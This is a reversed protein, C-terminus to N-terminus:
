KTLIKQFLKKNKRELFDVCTKASANVIGCQIKGDKLLFYTFRNKDEKRFGISFDTKKDGYFIPTIVM